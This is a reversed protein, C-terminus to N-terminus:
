KAGIYGKLVHFKFHLISHFIVKWLPYKLYVRTIGQSIQKEKTLGARLHLSNTKNNYIHIFHKKTRGLFDDYQVHVSNEIDRLFRDYDSPVDKLQIYNWVKKRFVYAGSPYAGRLKALRLFEFLKMIVTEYACHLKGGYLQYHNYRFSIVSIDKNNWLNKNFLKSDPIFDAGLHFIVDGKVFNTGYTFTESASNIWENFNKEIIVCRYKVKNSFHKVIELSKDNCRDLVFVIEDIQANILSALSFPLYKEENHIAMVVSIKM